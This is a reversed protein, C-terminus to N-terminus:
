RISTTSIGNIRSNPWGAPGCSRWNRSGRRLLLIDDLKLMAQESREHLSSIKSKLHTLSAEHKSETEGIEMELEKVKRLTEEVAPRIHSVLSNMGQDHPLAELFVKNSPSILGKLFGVAQSGEDEAKM